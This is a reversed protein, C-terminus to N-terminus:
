ASRGGAPTRSAGATAASWELLAHVAVGPGFRRRVEPASAESEGATAASPEPEAIGLVREVYFRYGCSEFDSLASYSLGGVLAPREEPRGLPPETGEDAAQAAPADRSTLLEAGAGPAPESVSVRLRGAPFGEGAAAIEADRESAEGDLLCHILQLAIPKRPDRAEGIAKPNFTGSLLLRREARTAAVYALRGEEEAEREAAADTLEQYNASASPPGAWGDSSCAWERRRAAM